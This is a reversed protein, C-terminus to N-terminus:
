KCVLFFSKKSFVWCTNIKRFCNKVFKKNTRSTYASFDIFISFPLKWFKNEVKKYKPCIEYLPNFKSWLYQVCVFLLVKFIDRQVFFISAKKNLTRGDYKQRSSILRTFPHMVISFIVHASIRILKNNQM